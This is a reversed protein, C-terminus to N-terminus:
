RVPNSQGTAQYITGSVALQARKQKLLLILEATDTLQEIELRTIVIIERGQLLAQSLVSHARTLEMPSGTIGAAAVFIGLPRGRSELKQLFVALEQYGAPSSWNKCEVLIIKDFQRLGSPHEDNWFAVDIEEARFANLVDRATVTIGPILEFLYAVLDELARGRETTTRAQDDGIALFGAIRAPDITTM